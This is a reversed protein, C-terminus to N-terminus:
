FNELIVALYISLVVAYDRDSLTFPPRDPHSEMYLVGFHGTAGIIPVLITSPASEGPGDTSVTLTM